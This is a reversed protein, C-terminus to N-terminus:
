LRNLAQKAIRAVQRNDGYISLYTLIVTLPQEGDISIYNRDLRGNVIERARKKTFKDWVTVEKKSVHIDYHKFREISQKDVDVTVKNVCCSFNILNDSRKRAITLVRLPEKEDRIYTYLIKDTNLPTRATM